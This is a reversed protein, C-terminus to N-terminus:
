RHQPRCGNRARPAIRHHAQAARAAHGAAAAGRNGGDTAKLRIVGAEVLGPFVTLVEGMNSPLQYRLVKHINDLIARGERMAVVITAFNDDAQLADFIRLKYGPAFGAYASTSRVTVALAADGHM